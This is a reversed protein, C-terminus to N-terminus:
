PCDVAPVDSSLRIVIAEIEERPILQPSTSNHITIGEIMADLARAQSASFHKEMAQRSAAMWETMIPRLSQRRTAYAYLEFILAMERAKQPSDDSLFDIIALRAEESNRAEELRQAFRAMVGHSLRLFAQRVIEELGSFYYTLSGLPVGAIEAIRRHTTDAVGHRAITELAADIIRDRRDPDNRSRPPKSPDRM